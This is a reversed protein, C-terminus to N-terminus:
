ALPSKAMRLGIGNITTYVAIILGTAAAFWLAKKGGSQTHVPKELAFGAIGLSILAM